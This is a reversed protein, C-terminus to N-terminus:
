REWRHAERAFKNTLTEQITSLEPVGDAASASRIQEQDKLAQLQILVDALEGPTVALPFREVLVPGGKPTSMDALEERIAEPEVSDIWSSAQGQPPSKPFANLIAKAIERGRESGVLGNRIAMYAERRLESELFARFLVQEAAPVEGLNGEPAAVLIRAPKSAKARARLENRVRQRFAEEMGRAGGLHKKSLEATLREIEAMSKSSALIDVAGSWFGESQPDFVLELRMLQFEAPSLGEAVVRKLAEPGASKLITDPDAGVPLRAVRVELGAAELVDIARAAAKSGAEDGDYLIVARKCWRKLLRAHDEALSTGLSAVANTLGARHCAVVDLFGEVLIAEQQRGISEKARNMGFLVKSKKFLPTDSSNIYKPQGEGIIRGGYAILDGREDFIPIMLRSRFKDFYGGTGDDEVLFLERAESLLVKQKRLYTALESDGGPAYGFGWDERLVADFGRSECYETAAKSAALQAGFFEQALKMIQLQRLRKSEEGPRSRKLTVGAMAALIKLAESFDVNQTKMVWNFADGKEGCAWCRYRGLTPDVTFSPTRDDHFPCLGKFHKGARKLLVKQGVLDVIDIRARIEDREDSM